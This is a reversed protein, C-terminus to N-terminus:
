YFCLTALGMGVTYFLLEDNKKDASPHYFSLLQPQLSLSKIQKAFVQYYEFRAEAVNNIYARGEHWKNIFDLQKM